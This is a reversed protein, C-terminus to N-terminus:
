IRVKKNKIARLLIGYVAFSKCRFSLAVTHKIVLYAVKLKCKFSDTKFNIAGACYKDFRKLLISEDKEMNSFDQLCEIDLVLFVHIFKRIRDIFQFDSFDLEVAANYGGAEVFKDVRVMLGSNIVEYKGLDYFGSPVKDPLAGFVRSPSIYKGTIIRHKPVLMLVDPYDELGKNYSSWACPPFSTDQDLLLIWRYGNEFAFGAAKNYCASVGPNDPNWYYKYVGNSLKIEEYQSIPSNDFVFLCDIKDLNKKIFTKYVECESIKVGYIVVTCVIKGKLTNM